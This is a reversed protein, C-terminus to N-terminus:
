IGPNSAPKDVRDWGPMFIELVFNEFQLLERRIKSYLLVAEIENQYEDYL